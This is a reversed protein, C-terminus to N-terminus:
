NFNLQKYTVTNDGRPQRNGMLIQFKGDMTTSYEFGWPDTTGADIRNSCTLESNELSCLKYYYNFYNNVANESYYFHFQDAAASSSGTLLTPWQISSELVVQKRTGDSIDVFEGHIAGSQLGYIVMFNGNNSVAIVPTQVVDSVGSEPITYTTVLTGNEDYVLVLADAYQNSADDTAIYAYSGQTALYISSFDAVRQVSSCSTSTCTRLEISPNAGLLNDAYVVFVVGNETVGIEYAGLDSPDGSTIAIPSNWTGDYVVLEFSQIPWNNVLMSSEILIGITTTGLSDEYAGIKCTIAFSDNYTAITRQTASFNGPEGYIISGSGEITDLLCVHTSNRTSAIDGILINNTLDISTDGIAGESLALEIREMSTDTYVTLSTAGAGVDLAKNLLASISSSPDSVELSLDSGEYQVAVSCVSDPPWTDPGTITGETDTFSATGCSDDTVTEGSNTFVFECDACDADATLSVSEMMKLVFGDEFGATAFSITTPIQAPTTPAAGAGGDDVSDGGISGGTSGGCACFILFLMGIVYNKLYDKIKMELIHHAILIGPKLGM